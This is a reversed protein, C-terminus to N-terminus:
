AAAQKLRVSDERRNFRSKQFRTMGAIQRDNVGETDTITSAAAESPQGVSPQDLAHDAAV